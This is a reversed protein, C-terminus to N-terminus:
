ENKVTYTKDPLRYFDVLAKLRIHEPNSLLLDTPLVVTFDVDIKELSKRDYFRVPQDEDKNFFYVPKVAVRDYFWVPFTYVGDEIYIRRAVRDFADNLVNELSFVQATHDLKYNTIDRYQMFKEYLTVVPSVLCLLWHIMKPTRRRIPILEAVLQLHDVIYISDFM